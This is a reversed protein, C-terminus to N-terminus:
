KEEGVSRARITTSWPVYPWQDMEVVYQGAVDASLELSGDDVVVVEGNVMMQCPIPLGSIQTEDVGDALISAKSVKPRVKPRKEVRWNDRIPDDINPVYSLETLLNEKTTLAFLSKQRRLSLIDEPTLGTQWGAFEGRKTCLFLYVTSDVM